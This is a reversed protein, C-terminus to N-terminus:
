RYLNVAPYTCCFAFTLRRGTITARAWPEEQCCHNVPAFYVKDATRRVIYAWPNGKDRICNLLCELWSGIPPDIRQIARRIVPIEAGEEYITQDVEPFPAWFARQDDLGDFELEPVWFVRPDRTVKYKYGIRPLVNGDFVRFFGKSPRDAVVQKVDSTIPLLEPSDLSAYGKTKYGKAWFVDFSVVFRRDDELALQLPSRVVIEEKRQNCHYVPALFVRQERDHHPLMLHPGTYGKSVLGGGELVEVPELRDNFVRLWGTGAYSVYTRWMCPKLHEFWHRRAFIDPPLNIPVVRTM